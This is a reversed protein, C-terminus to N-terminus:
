PKRSQQAFLEPFNLSHSQNDLWKLEWRIGARALDYIKDKKTLEATQDIFIQLDRKNSHFNIM